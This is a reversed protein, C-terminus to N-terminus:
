YFYKKEKAPKVKTQIIQEIMELKSTNEALKISGANKSEEPLINSKEKPATTM